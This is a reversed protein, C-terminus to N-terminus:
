NMGNEVIAMDVYAIQIEGSKKTVYVRLVEFALLDKYKEADYKLISNMEIEDMKLYQVRKTEKDYSKAQVNGWGNSPVTIDVHFGSHVLLGDIGGDIAKIAPIMDGSGSDITGLFKVYVAERRQGEEVPYFDFCTAVEHRYILSSDSVPMVYGSKVVKTRLMKGDFSYYPTDFSNECADKLLPFDELKVPQSIPTKVINGSSKALTKELNELMAHADVPSYGSNCGTAILSVGAFLATTFIM